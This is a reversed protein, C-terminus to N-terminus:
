GLSVAPRTGAWPSPQPPPGSHPRAHTPSHAHTSPRAQAPSRLQPPAAPARRPSPSPGSRCVPSGPDESSGPDDVAVWLLVSARSPGAIGPRTPACWPACDHTGEGRWPWRKARPDRAQADSRGPESGARTDLEEHSGSVLYCGLYSGLRLHCPNGQRSFGPWRPSRQRAIPM